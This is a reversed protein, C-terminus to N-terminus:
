RVASYRAPGIESYKPRSNTYDHILCTEYSHASIIFMSENM